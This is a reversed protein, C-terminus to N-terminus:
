EKLPPRTKCIGKLFTQNCTNDLLMFYTQCLFKMTETVLHQCILSIFYIFKWLPLSYLLLLTSFLAFSFGYVFHIKVGPLKTCLMLAADVVVSDRNNIFEVEKQTLITCSFYKFWHLLPSHKYVVHCMKIIEKLLIYFPSSEIISTSLLFHLPKLFLYCAAQGQM